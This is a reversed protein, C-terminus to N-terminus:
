RVTATAVLTLTLTTALGAHAVTVV